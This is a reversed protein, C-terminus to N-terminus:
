KKPRTGVTKNYLENRDTMAKGVHGGKTPKRPTPRPQAKPIYNGGHPM